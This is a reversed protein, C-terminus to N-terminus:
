PKLNNLTTNVSESIQEIKQVLASIEYMVYSKLASFQSEESQQVTKIKDIVHTKKHDQPPTFTDSLFCPPTNTASRQQTPNINDNDTSLKKYFSDCGNPSKQNIIIGNKIM